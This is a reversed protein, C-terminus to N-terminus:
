GLLREAIVKAMGQKWNDRLDYWFLEDKNREYFIFVQEEKAGLGIRVRVIPTQVPAFQSVEAQYKKRAYSFDFSSRVVKM